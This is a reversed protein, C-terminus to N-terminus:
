LGHGMKRSRMTTPATSVILNTVPASSVLCDLPPEQSALKRSHVVLRFEPAGPTVFAAKLADVYAQLVTILGTQLANGSCDLENLGGIFFRGIRTRGALTTKISVLAALFSPMDDGALGRTGVQAATAPAVEAPSRLPLSGCVQSARILLAPNFTTRFLARYAAFPAGMWATILDTEPAATTTGARFHLTHIHQQGGVTGRVSLMLTDNQAM